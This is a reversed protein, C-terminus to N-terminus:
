IVQTHGKPVYQNEVVNGGPKGDRLAKDVEQNIVEKAAQDQKHYSNKIKMLYARIVPEGRSVVKSVRSNLDTNEQHLQGQGLKPVESREVYVYGGDLARQCRGDEDNFWRLKYGKIEDEVQLKTRHAGFPVRKVKDKSQSNKRSNAM